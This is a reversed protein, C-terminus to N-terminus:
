LPPLVTIDQIWIKRKEVGFKFTDVTWVRKGKNYFALADGTGDLQGGVVVFTGTDPWLLAGNRYAYLKDDLPGSRLGEAGVLNWTAKGFEDTAIYLARGGSEPSFRVDGITPYGSIPLEWNWTPGQDLDFAAITLKPDFNDYCLQRYLGIMGRDVGDTGTQAELMAIYGGSAAIGPGLLREPQFLAVPANKKRTSVGRFPDLDNGMCPSPSAWIWVKDPESGFAGATVLYNADRTPIRDGTREVVVESAVADLRLQPTFTKSVADGRWVQWTPDSMSGSDDTVTWGTVTAQFQGPGAPELAAHTVMTGNPPDFRLIEQGHLDVVSYHTGWSGDWWAEADEFYTARDNYDAWAVVFYAEPMAGPDVTGWPDDGDGWGPDDGGGGGGADGEDDEPSVERLRYDTACGPFLVLTSLGLISLRM